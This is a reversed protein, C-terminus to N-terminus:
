ETPRRSTPDGDGPSQSPDMPEAGADAPRGQPQGPEPGMPNDPTPDRRSRAILLATVAIGVAVVAVFLWEM